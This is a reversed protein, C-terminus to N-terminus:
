KKGSTTINGANVVTSDNRGRNIRELEQIRIDHLKIDHDMSFCKCFLVFVMFMLWIQWFKDWRTM